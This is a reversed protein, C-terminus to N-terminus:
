RNRQIQDQIVKHNDWLPQMYPSLKIEIDGPLFGLDKNSLPVVPRAIYIQRYNKRVQLASALALLTKGTGAKGTLTVLPIADNTLANIAFTQEANRPTIGFTPVKDIKSFIEEDQSLNALVSRNQNRIIFFKNPVLEETISKCIKKAEVEFPAKYFKQILEDDFDEIIDKGTYLHDVSGIRDTTYNEAMLGMAKAKMRLNVDKSVLIIKKKEKSTQLLNYAVSLIRHDPTDERFSEQIEKSLGKSIVIRVKGKGNGISVGGNFIASGTLNDLTRTFERANLNIVQSGRKFHDIEEIVTLPIVINNEEFQSICTPDHLIVNTDLVFTKPTKTRAM